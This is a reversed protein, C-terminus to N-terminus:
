LTVVEVETVSNAKVEIEDIVYTNLLSNAEPIVTLKYTGAPVGNLSFEGEANTYASITINSNEIRVLAQINVPTISGVVTGANPEANLRIVPKLNYGGNGTTVISNDVDFDLLFAYNEGAVLEENVQLKLGSQQASPTNLPKSVGNVVVTNNSGLILRIQSVFGEPVETDALVQTVGGTLELLDYVGTQVDDVAIWGDGDVDGELETESTVHIEIGQVDILVADYDGPADTMRVTLNAKGGNPSGDDESCSQLGVSAILALMLIKWNM